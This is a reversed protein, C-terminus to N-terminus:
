RGRLRDLENQLSELQTELPPHGSLSIHGQMQRRVESLDREIYELRTNLSGWAIAIAGLGVVLPTVTQVWTLAKGNLGNGNAM